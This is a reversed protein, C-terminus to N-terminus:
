GNRLVMWRGAGGKGGGGTGNGGGVFVNQNAGNSELGEVKDAMLIIMGGGGGGSNGAGGNAGTADISGGPVTNGAANTAGAALFKITPAYLCVIGGGAGPNAGGGAAGGRCLAISALLRTGYHDPLNAGNSAANGGPRIVANSVPLQTPQGPAAGGGGSGGFDGAQGGQGGKGKANIKAGIEIMTRARWILPTRNTLTIDTEISINDAQVLSIASPDVLNQDIFGTNSFPAVSVASMMKEFFNDNIRFAGALFYDFPAGATTASEPIEIYGPLPINALAGPIPGAFATVTILKQTAHRSERTLQDVDRHTVGGRAALGFQDDAHDILALLNWSDNGGGLGSPNPLRSSPLDFAVISPQAARVNGVTKVGLTVWSDGNVPNGAQIETHYNLPLDTRGNVPSLLLTVRVSDAALVGRNHVQVYVKSTIVADNHTAVTTSRDELEDTYESFSLSRDLNPSFQYLGASNPTDIKISISANHNLTGPTNDTPDSATNPTIFRGTDLLTDRVFLEVGHKNATDLTREWVGRGQTAARLLPPRIVTTGNKRSPLIKLDMVAVDPLGSSMPAWNQGGDTSKWVGIDAGVYLDGSASETDIALSSHQVDLLQNAPTAAPGSRAAWDSGDFHWVHRYDIVGGATLIGGLTLYISNGTNDSPDVIISTVPVGSAVASLPNANAVPTAAANDIRTRTWNNGSVFDYRYVQGNMLGAYLKNTNAFVLSRIEDSLIPALATGTGPATPAIANWSTGFNRSIWPNRSGFALVQSDAAAPAPASPVKLHAPPASVVPAYFLSTDGGSAPVSVNAFGFSGNVGGNQSRSITKTLYTAVVQYPNNWDMVVYGSDGAVAVEWLGEGSYRVAGNDQTGCIMVAEETPHMALHNMTLTNLGDNKAQFIAGSGLPTHSFYVGGDCGVWFKNPNNPEFVLSHVDAHVSAGIYTFTATVGTISAGTRAITLDCRYLAASWESDPLVPPTNGDKDADVTAGGLYIRDSHSTEPSVSIALDYFGQGGVLNGAAPIGVVNVWNNDGTEWRLVQGTGRFAYVVQPRNPHVALTIRRDLNSIGLMPLQAGMQTWANGDNSSYIRGDRFAAFFTTTGGTEAMVLSSPHDTPPGPLVKQVWHYNGTSGIQERRYIGATTAAVVRDRQNPDVAMQYFGSSVLTTAATSASETQWTLGGNLSVVPGIGFLIFLRDPDLVLMAAMHGEGTGVYIKDDAQTAGFDVAIAGCALSDARSTIPTTPDNGSPDLDFSFADATRDMLSVWSMGEDESLWVGGNATAVYMREGGPAIAFGQVRGSVVPATAAQGKRVASPGVPIWNNQPPAQIIARSTVEPRNAEKQESLRERYTQLQALRYAAINPNEAPPIESLSRSTTETAVEVLTSREKIFSTLRRLPGIMGERKSLPIHSKEAM